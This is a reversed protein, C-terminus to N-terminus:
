KKIHMWIGAEKQKVEHDNIISQELLAAFHQTSQQGMRKQRINDWEPHLEHMQQKIQELLQVNGFGGGIYAQGGPALVRYVENLAQVQDLWFFISGRSIILQASNSKFPLSEACGQQLSVRETLNAAMCNARALTLMDVSPDLLVVQLKAHLAALSLGLNGPGCGIDICLGSTISTQKSINKAIVPYIPAFIESAIKGFRKAGANNFHTESDSQTNSYTM